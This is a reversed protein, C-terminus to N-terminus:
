RSSRMARALNDPGAGTVFPAHDPCLYYTRTDPQYDVFGATM